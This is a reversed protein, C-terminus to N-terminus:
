FILAHYWFPPSNILGKLSSKIKGKVNIKEKEAVEEVGWTIVKRRNRLSLLLNVVLIISLVMKSDELLKPRSTAYKDLLHVRERQEKQVVYLVESIIAEIDESLSPKVNYKELEVLAEKGKVERVDVVLSKEEGTVKRYVESWIERLIFVPIFVNTIGHFHFHFGKNKDNISGNMTVELKWLWEGIEWLKVRDKYQLRDEIISEFEKFRKQWKKREKDLKDDSWKKKKLYEELRSGANELVKRLKRRSLWYGRLKAMMEYLVSISKRANWSSPITLTVFALRKEREIHKEIWSWYKGLRKKMEMRACSLCLPSNCRNWALGVKGDERDFPIPFSGCRNQRELTKFALLFEDFSFSLFDQDKFVSSLEQYAKLLSSFNYFGFKSPNLRQEQCGKNYIINYNRNSYPSM